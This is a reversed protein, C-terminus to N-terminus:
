EKTIKVAYNTCVDHMRMPCCRVPIRSINAAFCARWPPRAPLVVLDLMLTVFFANGVAAATFVLLLLSPSPTPRASFDSSVALPSEPERGLPALRLQARPQQSYSLGLSSYTLSSHRSRQKLMAQSCRATTRSLFTPFDIYNFGM